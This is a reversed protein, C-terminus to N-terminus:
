AGLWVLVHRYLTSSTSRYLLAEVKATGPQGTQQVVFTTEWKENPKLDISPWIKVTQGNVNVELLYKTTTQEMNILGLQVANKANAGSAPLIWLQTFGPRPQKAAGIFSMVVTGSLVVVALGILLGQPISLGSNWHRSQERAAMDEGRRRVLAVGSAGLTIFGLLVAWSSAHLGFPTINLALGGLIVIILSLSLSFVLREPIGFVRKPFMAATLAYGPLVLVLPLTLIRVSAEDPPVVFALTIAILTILAVALLDFSNHKM